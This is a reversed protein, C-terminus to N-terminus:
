EYWQHIGMFGPRFAVHSILHILNSVAFAYTDPIIIACSYIQSDVFWVYVFVKVNM